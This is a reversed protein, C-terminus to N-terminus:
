IDKEQTTIESITPRRHVVQLANVENYVREALGNGGVERYPKYLDETFDEYEDSTIFGREIYGSGREIIKQKVLGRILKTTASKKDRKRSFFTWFGVSSGVSAIVTFIGVIM